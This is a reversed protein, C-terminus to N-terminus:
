RVAEIFAKMKDFDKIGKALEIGGSVDVAYIPLQRTLAVNNPTLGGALIIPLSSQKPIISWDFREGTGGFKDAHYADLLISAAGKAHYDDIIKQIGKADYRLADVRVAKIWRKNVLAAQRQCEDATEDGHFQIIDFSVAQAIKILMDDDINVVLAVVSVFAPINAVLQKAQLVDVARPSPPYFVLGIADAGACVAANVDQPRTLGCFKVQKM